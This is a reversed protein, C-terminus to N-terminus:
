KFLSQLERSKIMEIDLILMQTTGIRSEALMNGLVIFIYFFLILDILFRFEDNYYLYLKDM